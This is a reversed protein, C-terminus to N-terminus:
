RWNCGPPSPRSIPTRTSCTSARAASSSASSAYTVPTLIVEWAVKLAWQTVLVQIVLTTTWGAAGLFALPYFILSDIGEGRDDIRDHPEV